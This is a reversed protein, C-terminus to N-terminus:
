VNVTGGTHLRRQVIRVLRNRLTTYDADQDTEVHLTAIHDGDQVFVIQQTYVFGDLGTVTTKAELAHVHSDTHPIRRRRVVTTAVAGPNAAEFRENADDKLCQLLRREFLAAVQERAARPSAFTSVSAAVVDLDSTARPDVFKPTGSTTISKRQQEALAACAATAPASRDSPVVAEAKWGSPFDDIHLVNSEAAGAPASVVSALAILIVSLSRVLRGAV